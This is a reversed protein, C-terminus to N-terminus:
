AITGEVKKEEPAFGSGITKIETKLQEIEQEGNAIEIMASTINEDKLLQEVTKPLTEKTKLDVIKRGIIGYLEDMRDQVEDIRIRLRIITLEAKVRESFVAAAVAIKRSGKQMNLVAKEWITV